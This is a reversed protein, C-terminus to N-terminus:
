YWFKMLQNLLPSSGLLIGSGSFSANPNNDLVVPYLLVFELIKKLFNRQM